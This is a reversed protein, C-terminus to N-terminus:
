SECRELTSAMFKSCWNLGENLTYNLLKSKTIYDTSCQHPILRMNYAQKSVEAEQVGFMSDSLPALRLSKQQGGLWLPKLCIIQFPFQRLGSEAGKSKIYWPKLGLGLCRPSLSVSARTATEQSIQEWVVASIRRMAKLHGSSGYPLLACKEYLTCHYEWTQKTRQRGLCRESVHPYTYLLWFTM